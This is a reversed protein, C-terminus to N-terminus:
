NNLSFFFSRKTSLNKGTYVVKGAKEISTCKTYDNTINKLPAALTTKHAAKSPPSKTKWDCVSTGSNTLNPKSSATLYPIIVGPRSLPVNSSYGVSHLEKTSDEITSLLSKSRCWLVHINCWKHSCLISWQSTQPKKEEKFHIELPIHRVLVCRVCNYSTANTTGTIDTVATTHWGHRMASQLSAISTNQFTELFLFSM